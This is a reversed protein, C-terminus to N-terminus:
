SKIEPMTELSKFGFHRLFQETTGFLIPKGPIDLRGTETILNYEMLKNVAHDASVGRIQEIQNKTIPQKYAVIALTELIAPSLTKRQPVSYLNKIYSFYEQNTCMQYSNEFQVIKIGRKEEEYKQSIGEILAQTEEISKDIVNAIDRIEVADGTAFLIAEVIAEDKTFEM